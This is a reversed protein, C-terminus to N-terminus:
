LFDEFFFRKLPAHGHASYWGFEEAEKWASEKSWGQIRVRYCAIVLGTRHRGGKCQVLWGWKPDFTLAALAQEIDGHRPKDCDSMPINKFSLGLQLAEHQERSEYGIDERLNMVSRIGYRDRYQRLNSSAPQASRFITPTVEGFNSGSSKIWQWVWM